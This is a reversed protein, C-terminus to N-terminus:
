MRSISISEPSWSESELFKFRDPTYGLINKWDGKKSFTEENLFEENRTDYWIGPIDNPNYKFFTSGSSPSLKSGEPRCTEDHRESLFNINDTDVTTNKM